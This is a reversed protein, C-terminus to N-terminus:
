WYDIYNDVYFNNYVLPAVDPYLGSNDDATRQLAYICTTPSSKAGFVHVVMKYVKPDGISGPPRWLFQLFFQEHPPVSVQHYMKKIDSAIGVLGTQFLLLKSDIGQLM